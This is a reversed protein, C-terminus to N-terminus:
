PVSSRGPTRRGPRSSLRGGSDSDSGLLAHYEPDSSLEHHPALARLRGGDLWAVLDARAATAPRHAILIRTCGSTAREVAGNVRAETVTDLAATADDLVIMRLGSGGRALARALGLRQTEVGSLPARELPTDDHRGAFPQQGDLRVAELGQAAVGQGLAGAPQASDRVAV